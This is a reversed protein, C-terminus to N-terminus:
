RMEGRDQFYLNLTQIESPRYQVKLRHIFPALPTTFSEKKKPPPPASLSQEERFCLLWFAAFSNALLSCFLLRKSAFSSLWVPAFICGNKEPNTLSSVKTLPFYNNIIFETDFCWVFDSRAYFLCFSIGEETCKYLDLTSLWKFLRTHM